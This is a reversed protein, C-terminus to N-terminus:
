KGSLWKVSAPPTNGCGITDTVGSAILACANEVATRLAQQETSAGAVRCSRRGQYDMCVECRYKNTGMTTFVIVGLVLVVFAIGLLVTKKM